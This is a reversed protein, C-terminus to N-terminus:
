VRAGFAIWSLTKQDVSLIGWRVWRVDEIAWQDSFPFWHICAFRDSSSNQWQILFSDDSEKRTISNRLCVHACTHGDLVHACTSRFFCGGWPPKRNVVALGVQPLMKSHQTLAWLELGSGERKGRKLSFLRELKSSQAKFCSQFHWGVYSQSYTGQDLATHLVNWSSIRGDCRTTFDRVCPEQDPFMTFLPVYYICIYMRSRTRTGSYM